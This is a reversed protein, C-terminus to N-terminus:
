TGFYSSKNGGKDDVSAISSAHYYQLPRGARVAREVRKYSKRVADPGGAWPTGVLRERAVDFIEDWTPPPTLDRLEKILL